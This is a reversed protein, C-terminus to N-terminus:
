GDYRRLILTANQGGFGFSNTLAYEGHYPRGKETVHNLECGKGVQELFPNFPLVDELLPLLCAGAELAGAAGILHGTLSKTSAVSIDEWIGEFVRRIAMAEVEDNLRTATGHSNIHSIQQKELGADDLAAAMSRAAGDGDPDPASLNHADLSSGYGSVEALIEKGEARAKELPELVFIAAGEGLVAGSRTADFPRCASRGRDNDMTLAGLLQFGGVGLPNIMSDFGGCVAVEYRGSRVARFGHGVTQAGAACASCNTLAQAPDGHFKRILNVATDLPVQLFPADGSTCLDATKRFDVAGDRVLLDLNLIEITTGLHLLTEPGLGTIGAARVAEGFAIWAFGVKPDQEAIEAVEEPLGPVRREPVEGAVQVGFTSCDFRTIPGIGSEGNELAQFFARKGVGIPSVIGFGTIGVRRM